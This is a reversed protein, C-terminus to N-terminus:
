EFKIVIEGNQEVKVTTLGYLKDINSMISNVLKLDNVEYAERILEEYRSLQIDRLYDAYGSNDDNLKELAKNVKAYASNENINLTEMLHLVIQRRNMGKNFMGLIELHQKTIEQETAQSPRGVRKNNYKKGM